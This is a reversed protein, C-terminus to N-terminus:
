WSSPLLFISCPPLPITLCTRIPLNSLITTLFDACFFSIGYSLVSLYLVGIISFKLFRHYKGTRKKRLLLKGITAYRANFRIMSMSVFLNVYSIVTYSILGQERDIIFYLSQISIRYYRHVNGFYFKWVSLFYKPMFKSIGSFHNFNCLPNEMYLITSFCYLQFYRHLVQPGHPM